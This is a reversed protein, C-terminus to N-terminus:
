MESLRGKDGVIDQSYRYVKKVDSWRSRSYRWFLFAGSAMRDILPEREDLADELANVESVLFVRAQKGEAKALEGLEPVGIVSYPFNLTQSQNGLIVDIDLVHFCFNLPDLFGSLSAPAKKKELFSFSELIVQLQM